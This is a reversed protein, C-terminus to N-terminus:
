EKLKDMLAQLDETSMGKLVNEVQNIAVVRKKVAKVSKKTPRPISRAARRREILKTAEDLSLLSISTKLSALDSM